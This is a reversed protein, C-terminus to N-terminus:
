SVCSLPTTATSSSPSCTAAEVLALCSHFIPDLDDVGLRGTEFRERATDLALWLRHYKSPGLAVKAARIRGECMEFMTVVDRRPQLDALAAVMLLGDAAGIGFAAELWVVAEAFGCGRVVEVLGVVDWTRGCAFCHVHNSDEYVRASPRREPHQPNPCLIQQTGEGDVGRGLARLAEFITVAEKLVLARVRLGDAESPKSV